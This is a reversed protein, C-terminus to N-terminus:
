VNKRLCLYIFIWEFIVLQMIVEVDSLKGSNNYSCFIDDEPLTAITKVCGRDASSTMWCAERCSVPPDFNIRCLDGVLGEINNMLSDFHTAVFDVENVAVVFIEIPDDEPRDAEPQTTTTNPAPTTV